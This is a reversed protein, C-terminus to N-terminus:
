IGRRVTITSELRAPESREPYRKSQTPAGRPWPGVDVERHRVALWPPGGSGPSGAGTDGRPLPIGGAASRVFDLAAPKDLM